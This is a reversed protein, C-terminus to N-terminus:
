PLNILILIWLGAGLLLFFELKALFKWFGGNIRSRELSERERWSLQVMEDHGPRVHYSRAASSLAAFLVMILFLGGACAILPLTFDFGDMQVQIREKSEVKSPAPMSSAVPRWWMHHILM